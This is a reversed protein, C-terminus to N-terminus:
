DSMTRHGVTIQLGPFSTLNFCSFFARFSPSEIKSKRVFCVISKNNKETNTYHVWGWTFVISTINRPQTYIWVPCAQFIHRAV